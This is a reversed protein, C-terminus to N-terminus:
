TAATAKTSAALSAGASTGKCTTLGTTTKTSATLSAQTALRSTAKTALGTTAETTLGDTRETATSTSLRTQPTLGTETGAALQSTGAIGACESARPTICRQTGARATLRPQDSAFASRQVTRGRRVHCARQPADTDPTLATGGSGAAGAEADAACAAGAHQASLAGPQTVRRRLRRSGCNCTTRTHAPVRASAASGAGATAQRGSSGAAADIRTGAPSSVAADEALLAGRESAAATDGTVATDARLVSRGPRNAMTRYDLAAATGSAVNTTVGRRRVGARDELTPAGATSGAVTARASRHDVLRGLLGRDLM